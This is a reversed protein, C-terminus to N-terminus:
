SAARGTASVALRRIGEETLKWNQRKGKVETELLAHEQWQSLLIQFQQRNVRIDDVAHATPNAQLLRRRVDETLYKEITQRMRDESVPKKMVVAVANFLADWRQAVTVEKLTNNGAEYVKASLRLKVPQRATEMLKKPDPRSLSAPEAPSDAEPEDDEIKLWGGTRNELANAVATKVLAILEERLHWLRYDGQSVVGHFGALRREDENRPKGSIANKVFALVPKNLSRAHVYERHLYSIGTPAMPGYSDGLVMIFLDAEEIQSRALDWDYPSLDDRCPLGSALIGMRALQRAVEYRESELGEQNSAMYVLFRRTQAM